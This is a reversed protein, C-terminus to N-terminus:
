GGGPTARRATTILEVQTVGAERLRELVAVTEVASVAGDAKVRVRDPAGNELRAAVVGTLADPEIEEMGLALRGDAGILIMPITRDIEAESASRVPDIAFPDSTELKGAVMFFILLLFVINILPLTREEEARRRPKPFSLAM